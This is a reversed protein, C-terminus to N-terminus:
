DGTGGLSFKVPVAQGARVTNLVPPNDVPSQLGNLVYLSEFLSFPSLSTVTGCIRGAVPDNCTTVDDWGGTGADHFLRLRAPRSFGTPDYNICIEISGDFEATTAIEYYVPPNGLKFGDPPPTGTASSTVTTTGSSTVNEFVLAIPSEGTTEDVPAVPVDSGVARGSYRDPPAEDEFCPGHRLIVKARQV